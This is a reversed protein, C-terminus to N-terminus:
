EDDETMLGYVFIAAAALLSSIMFGVAFPIFKGILLIIAAAIVFVVAIVIYVWQQLESEMEEFLLDSMEQKMIAYIASLFLGVGLIVLLVFSLIKDGSYEWISGIGVAMSILAFITLMERHLSYIFKEKEKRKEYSKGALRNYFVQLAKKQGNTLDNSKSNKLVNTLGAKVSKNLEQESFIGETNVNKEIIGKLEEIDWYKVCQCIWRVANFTKKKSDYFLLVFYEIERGSAIAPEKFFEERLQWRIKKELGDNDYIIESCMFEYLLRPDSKSKIEELMDILFKVKKANPCRRNEVGKAVEYVKYRRYREVRDPDFWNLCFNSWLSYYVYETLQQLGSDRLRTCATEIRDVIDCLGDFDKAQKTQNDIMTNLLNRLKPYGALSIEASCKEINDCIDEFSKLGSLTGAEISYEIYTQLNYHKLYLCISNYLGEVGSDRLKRLFLIGERGASMSHVLAQATQETLGDNAAHAAQMKRIDALLNQDHIVQKKRNVAELLAALYDAAKEDDTIKYKLFEKMRDVANDPNICDSATSLFGAEIQGFDADKIPSAFVAQNFEAMKQFLQDRSRGQCFKPNCCASVFSYRNIKTTNFQFKGENLDVYNNGQVVDSFYLTTQVGKYSFSFLKQRLHYPLGKMILYLIDQYMELYAELPAQYKICLPTSYGELACVVAQMLVAYREDKLGYQIQIQQEDMSRGSLSYKVPYASIEPRYELEFNRSDFLKEPCSCLEYYDALGFSYGHVYAVGRADEGAAAYNVHMLYVFRDDRFVGMAKTPMQGRQRLNVLQSAFGQFGAKAFESMGESPAVMNWGAGTGQKGLRYYGAQYLNM